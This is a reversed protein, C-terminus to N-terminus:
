RSHTTQRRQPPGMEILAKVLIPSLREAFRAAAAAEAILDQRIEILVHPLGTRTGHRDLTDGALGGAYPENDGAAFEAARLSALLPDALRRDDDSLVAVDWTRRRGKWVPTFSHVSVLVPVGGAAELGAIEATIAAHYPAHFERLRTAIEAVDAKANGPIITGDSLKMVLTPDDAGRNLDIVLRSWRGLIAPSAFRVALDATVAAAGLDYAIHSALLQPPLGLGAYREPVANAAHDCLFLLGGWAGAATGAAPLRTFPLDTMSKGDNAIARSRALPSLATSPLGVKRSM